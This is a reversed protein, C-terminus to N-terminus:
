LSAERTTSTLGKDTKVVSWRNVKDEFGIRNNAPSTSPLRVFEIERSLSIYKNFFAAAKEGNFAILQILPLESLLSDIDNPVEEQIASDLSGQRECAQLIDWLALDNNTLLRKRKEYDTTFPQNFLYFVIKWFCNGRHGYYQQLKLSTVGPMTGLILIRSKRSAIPPFSYVKM